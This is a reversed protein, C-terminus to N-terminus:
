KIEQFIIPKYLTFNIFLLRIIAFILLYNNSIDQYHPLLSQLVAKQAALLTTSLGSSFALALVDEGAKLIPEAVERWLTPNAATTSTMEGDRLGQYFARVNLERGDLYNKYEKGKFNVSLPAIQLGLSDALEQTLDCSSDTIIRYSAM